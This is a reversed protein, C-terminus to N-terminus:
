EEERRLVVGTLAPVDVAVALSDATLNVMEDDETAFVVALLSDAPAAPLSLRTPEEGRNIVVTLTDGDLARRFTFTRHEDDTAVTEFAGRRLAAHENRLGIVRRYYAFLTSDFAVPEPTRPRGLPDAAQAAYILDPWVMPMRDDPDDAGWMGAETGYYIMPAGLYTMQFLATLRQIRRERADPARVRYRDNQRISVREGWDYDFRDPALYAEYVGANVIMSALRDTDHSDILNQLRYRVPEPYALRRSALLAEFGSPALTGDILFGKVPFAFGHYNMTASFGGQAIFSAADEWIETVTYAHTNLRRVHANWAAWFGLPVENAVDLRWGDIGDAPDGDGDPDMWRATADLIYQRPGASLDSGDETDAFVPLAKYGWWGEYDFEDDPTDPDDWGTVVYWAAYPSAQQNARLDKFAFFDRGTHNFVGDIVVRLGRAHAEDLLTLFLRDAATWVWGAPDLANEGAILALDGDPDPGFYPDIHHFSSGDYKHLSRAYFVPNFYLANVGLDKLYDLKDIVGQLDGGYRRHFVADYFGEGIAKEWDARAYWDGTWSSVAWSAPARESQEISARTPDNSPDGNRFREPFIQYFVADRAWAAESAMAGARPAAPDVDPDGGGTADTDCGAIVLILAIYLLKYWHYTSTTCSAPASRRMTEKLDDRRLCPDM